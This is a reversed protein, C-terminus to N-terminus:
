PAAVGRARRERWLEVQASLAAEDCEADPIRQCASSAAGRYAETPQGLEVALAELQSARQMIESWSVLEDETDAPLLEVYRKAQAARAFRFALQAALRDPTRAVHAHISDPVSRFRYIYAGAIGAGLVAASLHSMLVLSATRRFSM